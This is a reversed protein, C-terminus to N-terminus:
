FKADVFEPHARVWAVAEAQTRTGTAMAAEVAMRGLMSYPLYAEVFSLGGSMAAKAEEIEAVVAPMEAEFIAKVEADGSCYRTGDFKKFGRLNRFQFVRTPNDDVLIARSLSLDVLRLDKSPTSVPNGKRPNEAGQGESKEQLVLHSNTLVGAILGARSLAVGHYEWHTLNEIVAEDVNASFLVVKGGLADIRDFAQEWGPVRQIVRSQGDAGVFRLDGCEGEVSQDYLTDDLDFVVIFPAEDLSEGIGSEREGAQAKAVAQEFATDPALTADAFTLDRYHNQLEVAGLRSLGYTVMLKSVNFFRGDGRPQDSYKDTWDPLAPITHAQLPSLVSGSREVYSVPGSDVSSSGSCENLVRVRRPGCGLALGLSLLVIVLFVSSRKKM